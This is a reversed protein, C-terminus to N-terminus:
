SGDCHFGQPQGEGPKDAARRSARYGAYSLSAFGILMMTWTSPEPIGSAPATSSGLILDNDVGFTDAQLQYTFIPSSSFLDFQASFTLTDGILKFPITAIVPGWGGSVSNSDPPGLSRIRVTNCTIYIEPGRIISDPTAYQFDNEERGFGDVTFFNPAQNFTIRFNIDPDPITPDFSASQSEILFPASRAQLAGCAILTAAALGKAISQHWHTQMSNSPLSFCIDSKGARDRAPQLLRLYGSM